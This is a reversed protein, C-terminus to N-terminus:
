GRVGDGEAACPGVPATRLTAYHTQFLSDDGIAKMKAWM